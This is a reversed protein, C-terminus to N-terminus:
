VPSTCFRNMLVPPAALAALGQAAFFGHAALFGHAAFFLGQAAFGQAAFLFHRGAPARLAIL